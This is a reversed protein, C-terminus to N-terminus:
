LQGKGEAQGTIEPTGAERYKIGKLLLLEPKSMSGQKAWTCESVYVTCIRIGKGRLPNLHPIYKNVMQQTTSHALDQQM